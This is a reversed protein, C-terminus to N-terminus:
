TSSQRVPPASKRSDMISVLTGSSGQTKRSVNPLCWGSHTQGAPQVSRPSLTPSALLQASHELPVLKNLSPCPNPRQDGRDPGGGEMDVSYQSLLEQMAAVQEDVRMELFRVIGPHQLRQVFVLEGFDKDETLLIRGEERALSLIREDSARPDVDGALRVDHGLDSLLKTLSRSSVCVDLVFKM